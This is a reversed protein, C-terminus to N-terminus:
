LQLWKKDNCGGAIRRPDFCIFRYAAYKFTLVATEEQECRVQKSFVGKETNPLDSASLSTLVLSGPVIRGKRPKARQQGGEKGDDGKGDGPGQSKNARKKQAKADLFADCATTGTAGQEDGTGLELSRVLPENDGSKAAAAAARAEDGKRSADDSGSRRVKQSGVKDGGGDSREDESNQQQEEGQLAM